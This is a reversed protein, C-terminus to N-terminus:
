RQCVCRTCIVVAYSFLTRPQQEDCLGEQQNGLAVMVASGFFIEAQYRKTMSGNGLMVLQGTFIAEKAPTLYNKHFTNLKNSGTKM